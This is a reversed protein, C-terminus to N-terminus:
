QEFLQSVKLKFGPIVNEGDLEDNSGLTLPKVAGPHYIEIAKIVPRVGWVLRVGLDLYELAKEEVEFQKDNPSVIEVALDPALKVIDRVRIPLRGAAVFSVDSERKPYGPKMEFTTRGDFVRGLQNGYVHNGLAM